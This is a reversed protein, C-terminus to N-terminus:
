YEETSCLFTVLTQIITKNEKRFKKSFSSFSGWTWLTEEFQPVHGSQYKM